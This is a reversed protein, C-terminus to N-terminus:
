PFGAFTDFEPRNVPTNLLRIVRSGADTSELVGVGQFFFDVRTHIVGVVTTVNTTARSRQSAGPVILDHDPTGLVADFFGSFPTGRFDRRCRVRLWLYAPSSETLEIGAIGTLGVINHLKIPSPLSGIERLAQSSPILDDVAGQDTPHDHSDFFRSICPSLRLFRALPTGLHPTNINILKHIDGLQFNDDRFYADETLPLMRTLLGGMSHTVVDARVAAAGEITRYQKIRSKIQKRARPANEAFFAGHTRRYDVRKVFFKPDSILPTFDDWGDASSWIGHVLVVPPRVIRLSETSEVTEGTSTRLRIRIFVKRDPDRAESSDSGRAFDRPAHYAAFAMPGVGDVNVAPVSVTSSGTGQGVQSLSGNFNNAPLEVGGGEETLSFEVTGEQETKVRVAVQAAGDAAIGTVITGMKALDEEKTTVAPGALLDPVPDVFKTELGPRTSARFIGSKGDSLSGWFIIEGKNNLRPDRVSRFTAGGPAPDNVSVVKTVGGSSSFFFIDSSGFVDLWAIADGKENIFLGRTFDAFGSTPGQALTTITGNPDRRFIGQNGDDLAAAFVVQESDNLGVASFSQFKRGGPAAMGKWAVPVIAGERLLLLGDPLLPGLFPRLSTFSSVLITENENMAGNGLGRIIGGGPAPAGMLNVVTLNGRKFLLIVDSDTEDTDRRQFGIKHAITGSNAIGIVANVQWVRYGFTTSRVAEITPCGFSIVSGNSVAIGTPFLIDRSDNIMGLFFNPLAVKGACIITNGDPLRYFEASLTAFFACDFPCSIKTLGLSQPTPIRQSVVYDGSSLLLNLSSGNVLYLHGGGSSFSTRGWVLIEGRRNLEPGVVDLLPGNPALDGTMVVPKIKLNAAHLLAPITFFNLIAALILCIKLNNRKTKM